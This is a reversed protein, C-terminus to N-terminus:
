FTWLTSVVGVRHPPSLLYFVADNVHIREVRCYDHQLWDSHATHRQAAVTPRRWGVVTRVGGGWEGIRGELQSLFSFLQHLTDASHRRIFFTFYVSACVSLLVVAPLVTCWGYM